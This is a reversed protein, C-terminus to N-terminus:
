PGDAERRRLPTLSLPAMGVPLGPGGDRQPQRRNSPTTEAGKELIGNYVSGTFAAKAMASRGTLRTAPESFALQSSSVAADVGM